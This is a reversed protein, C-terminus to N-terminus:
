KRGSLFSRGDVKLQYLRWLMCFVVGGVISMLLGSPRLFSNSGYFFWNLTGGVYSGAIGIFVTPFFGLPEDGPHIAKAIIGVILGFFVWALLFFM